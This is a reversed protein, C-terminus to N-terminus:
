SHTANTADKGRQALLGDVCGRTFDQGPSFSWVRAERDTVPSKLRDIREKMRAIEADREALLVELERVKDSTSDLIKQNVSEAREEIGVLESTM